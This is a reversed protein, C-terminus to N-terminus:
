VTSRSLQAVSSEGGFRSCTSRRMGCSPGSSAVDFRRDSRAAAAIPAAADRYEEAM